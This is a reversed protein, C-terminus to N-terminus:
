GILVTPCGVVISVKADTTASVDMCAKGILEVKGDANWDWCGEDVRAMMGPINSPGNNRNSQGARDDDFSEGIGCIENADMWVLYKRDSRTLGKQVLDEFTHDVSDARAVVDLISLDCNTTM